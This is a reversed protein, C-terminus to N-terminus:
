QLYTNVVKRLVKLFEGVTAKRYLKGQVKSVVEFSTSKINNVDGPDYDKGTCPSYLECLNGQKKYYLVLTRGDSFHTMQKVIINQPIHSKVDNGTKASAPMSVTVSMLALILTIFIPKM